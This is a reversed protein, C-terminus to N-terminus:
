EGGPLSVIRSGNRLKLEMTNEADAPVPRGLQQYAKVCKAFFEKSQRLSPSLVLTLSDPRYVAGHLGLTAATTSKGSQRSCLMLLAENTTRLVDRQWPDPEIGIQRSLIVPDLAMALDVGSM